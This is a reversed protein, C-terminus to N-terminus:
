SIPTMVVIPSYPIEYVTDSGVVHNVYTAPCLGDSPTMNPWFISQCNECWEWGSQVDDWKIAIFDNPMDYVSSGSSYQHESAGGSYFCHSGSRGPGFWMQHCLNCYRWGVQVGGPYNNQSVGGFPLLYASSGSGEHSGTYCVGASTGSSAWFLGGCKSCWLWGNQCEYNYAGVVM